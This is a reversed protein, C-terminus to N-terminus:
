YNICQMNRLEVHRFFHPFSAKSTRVFISIKFVISTCTRFSLIGGVVSCFHELYYRCIAACETNLTERVSFEGDHIILFISWTKLCNLTQSHNAIVIIFWCSVIYFIYFWAWVSLISKWRLFLRIRIMMMQLCLMNNATCNDHLM